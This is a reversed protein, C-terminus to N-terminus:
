AALSGPGGATAVDAHGCFHAILELGEQTSPMDQTQEDAVMQLRHELRRLYLYAKEMDTAVDDRVWGRSLLAQLAGLTDRVRLEPQRGGAILQQSVLAQHEVEKYQAVM